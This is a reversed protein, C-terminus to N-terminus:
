LRGCVHMRPPEVIYRLIQLATDINARYMNVPPPLVRAREDQFTYASVFRCPICLALLPEACSSTLKNHRPSYTQSARFRPVSLRVATSLADAWGHQILLLLAQKVQSAPLTNCGRMIEPLTQTGKTALHRCVIQLAPICVLLVISRSALAAALLLNLLRM